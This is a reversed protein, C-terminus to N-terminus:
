RSVAAVVRVGGYVSVCTLACPVEGLLACTLTRRGCREVNPLEIIEPLLAMDAKRVETDMLLRPPRPTSCDPGEEVDLAPRSGVTARM